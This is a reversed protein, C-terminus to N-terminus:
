QRPGMSGPAPVAAVHLGSLYQLVFQALCLSGSMCSSHLLLLKSVKNSGLGWRALHPCQQLMYAKMAKVEEIYQESSVAKTTLCNEVQLPVHTPLLSFTALAPLICCISAHYM